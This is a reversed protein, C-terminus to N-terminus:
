SHQMQCRNNRKVHTPASPALKPAFVLFEFAISHVFHLCCSFYKRREQFPNLDKENRVNANCTLMCVTQYSFAFISHNKSVLCIISTKKASVRKWPTKVNGHSVPCHNLESQAFLKLQISAVKEEIAQIM